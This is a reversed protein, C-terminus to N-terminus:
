RARANKFPAEAFAFYIFEGGSQSAQSNDGQYVFGNSLYDIQNYSGSDEASSLNAYVAEDIVNFDGRKNDTINWHDTANVRKIMVFAPRFGLFVFTGSGSGSYSGFKSYGAVESFAYM